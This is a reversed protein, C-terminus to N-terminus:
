RALLNLARARASAASRSSVGLKSYLNYLHWKVTAVSVSLRDALQQNTLGAEILTLLELERATPTETLAPVVDLANLQEALASNTLPLGVCIERFFRREEEVAFGWDKPRTDNVLAAILNARDRFPRLYRRKAALGIARALHRLAPAPNMACLSVAAEDLALEVLRASRGQERALRTQAKVVLEAPKLQRGALKLDIETAALLDALLGSDGSEQPRGADLAGGGALLGLQQAEATAAEHQGLRILRRVLLCSLMLSLRPPYAGAIERLLAVTAAEAPTGNWLKVAADLGLAATDVIGHTQAKRLGAQLLARAEEDQGLEVACKAAVIAITGVIGANEGLATKARSLAALLDQYALAFEGEQIAIMAGILTVWGVGYESQTQAIHSQAVRHLKRAEVLRHANALHISAASAVTAVNFPDDLPQQQALWAVAHAHSEALRDTYTALVIRLIDIRRKIAVIDQAGAGAAAQEREIRAALRETQGRAYEYRRHFVLAWVYWFDAEWGCDAGAAHLKEVWEIYQNLDGRDRVFMAAVRELIAAALPMSDTALAYDIADHWQGNQECWEAARRLVDRRQALPRQREAEGLLFERFLAHLRYASRNRDLPIVFLNDRLLADIHAAAAEDGTAQRCLPVSFVRLPAIELLFRRLREDLGGLIQRNLLAALDQDAGSFQCLSREPDQSGSLIIQMLRVAAPWGETQAVLAALAKASLRACLAPGLLEEIEPPKLSLQTLGADWLRGELRARAANFPPLSTGAVVTYFWSPTRFVLADLVRNLTGDGCYGLNDIFLVTPQPTCAIAELLSAIRQDVPEDGEHLAQVPDVIDPDIGLVAELRTLLREVTIDRDELSVWRCSAGSSRYHEHLATLLVTKGYGTPATVSVLRAPPVPGATLAHCAQTKVAAFAFFPPESIPVRSSM